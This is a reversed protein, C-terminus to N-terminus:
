FTTQPKNTGKHRLTSINPSANGKSFNPKLWFEKRLALIEETSIEDRECSDNNCCPSKKVAHISETRLKKLLMRPVSAGFNTESPSPQKCISVVKTKHYKYKEPRFWLKWIEEFPILLDL